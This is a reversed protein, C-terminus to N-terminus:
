WDPNCSAVVRRIGGRVPPLGPRHDRRQLRPPLLPAPRAGRSPIRARDPRRQGPDGLPPRPLVRRGGRHVGADHRRHRRRHGDPRLADPLVAPEGGRCGHPETRPHVVQGAARGCDRLRRTERPPVSGLVPRLGPGQGAPLGGAEQRLGYRGPRRPTRRGAGRSGHLGRLSLRGPNASQGLRGGLLSGSRPTRGRGGPGLAAAKRNRRALHGRSTPAPTEVTRGPLQDYQNHIIPSQHNAGDPGEAEIIM